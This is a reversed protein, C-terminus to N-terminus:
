LVRWIQLSPRLTIMVWMRVLRATSPPSSWHCHKRFTIAVYLPSSSNLKFLYSMSIILTLLDYFMGSLYFLWSSLFLTPHLTAAGCSSLYIHVLCSVIPQSFPERERITLIADTARIWSPYLDSVDILIALKGFTLQALSWLGPCRVFAITYKHLGNCRPYTYLALTPQVPMIVTSVATSFSYASLLVIGVTRNKRSITYARPRLM